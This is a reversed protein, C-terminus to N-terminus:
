MMEPQETKIGDVSPEM